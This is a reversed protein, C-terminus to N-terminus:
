IGFGQRLPCGEWCEGVVHGIALRSVVHPSGGTQTLAFDGDLRVGVGPVLRFFDPLSELVDQITETAISTAHRNATTMAHIDACSVIRRIIARILTPIQVDQLEADM